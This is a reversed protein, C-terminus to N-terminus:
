KLSINNFKLTRANNEAQKKVDDKTKGRKESVIHLATM